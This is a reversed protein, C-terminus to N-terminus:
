VYHNIMSYSARTLTSSGGTRTRREPAAIPLCSEIWPMMSGSKTGGGDSIPERDDGRESAGLVTGDGRVEVKRGCYTFTVRLQSSRWWGVLRTPADADIRDHLSPLETVDIQERGAVESVLELM